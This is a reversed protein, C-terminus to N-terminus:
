IKKDDVKYSFDIKKVKNVLQTTLFSVEFFATGGVIIIPARGTIGAGILASTTAFPTAYSSCLCGTTAATRAAVEKIGGYKDIIYKDYIKVSEKCQRIKTEVIMKDVIYSIPPMIHILKLIERFNNETDEDLPNKDTDHM